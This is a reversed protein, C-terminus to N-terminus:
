DEGWADDPKGEQRRLIAARFAEVARQHRASLETAVGELAKEMVEADVFDEVNKLNIRWHKQQYYSGMQQSTSMNVLGALFTLASTPSTTVQKLAWDRPEEETGWEKWRYLIYAMRTHNLLRGKSAAERIKELCLTQLEKIEDKEVLFADPHRGRDEKSTEISVKMVPLYLGSSNRIANKLVEARRSAKEETKLYWHVIRVAHMDPEIAFRGPRREPLLDGIDFFATVFADAHELPVTQKYAELRDLAIELIGRHQLGKLHDVLGSRDGALELVRDIDGQAIDGQPVSLYFYRDFIEPHCVRLERLWEEEYSSGSAYHTGGFVWEAGPFLRKLIESAAGRTSEAALDAVERVEKRIEEEQNAAGYSAKIGTLSQKIRPLARYLPYDFVRLTELAILDIPNVEFTDGQRLLGVHFSLMASFRRVDRLNEFYPKLGEVYINIWREEDFRKSTAEDSLIENLSDILVKELRSAEIAPIDFGVQVIKELFDTGSMADTRLNAEVTERQFLLLYVLNPFDANAKVLQFLLRTQSSTLRDIDDVVVVLPNPLGRLAEAVQEKMETVSRQHFETAASLTDSVAAAVREFVLFVATCVGLVVAVIGITQRLWVLDSFSGIGLAVFAALFIWLLSRAGSTLERGLRLNATYRRWILLRKRRDQQQDIRGLGLEIERFFADALQDQGAWQWPNFEIVPPRSDPSLETFAELALNKVSTKGSGWRGYLALVLSDKQRWAAIAESLAGAFSTRALRDETKSSIPRDTSFPHAETTTM